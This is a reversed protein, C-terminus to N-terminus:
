KKILTILKLLIIVLNRKSFSDRGKQQSANCMATILTHQPILSFQTWIGLKTVKPLNHLKQAEIKM